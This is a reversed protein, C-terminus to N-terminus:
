LINGIYFILWLNWLWWLINHWLVQSLVLESSVSFLKGVNELRKLELKCYFLWFLLFASKCSKAIQLNCSQKSLCVSNASLSVLIKVQLVHKLIWWKSIAIDNVGEKERVTKLNWVVTGESYLRGSSCAAGEDNQRLTVQGLIM